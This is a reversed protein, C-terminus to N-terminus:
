TDPRVLFVDKDWAFVIGMKLLLEQIFQSCLRCRCFIAVLGEAFGQEGIIDGAVELNRLRFFHHAEELSFRYHLLINCDLVM